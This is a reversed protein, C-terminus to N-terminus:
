SPVGEYEWGGVVRRRRARMGDRRNAACKVFFTLAALVFIIVVAVTPVIVVRARNTDNRPQYPCTGNIADVWCGPINLSNLNLFIAADVNDNNRDSSFSNQLVSLLHKNELSTHPVSFVYPEPCAAGADFYTVQNDSVTWNYPQDPDKCAVRRRANCNSTRWRGPHPPNLPMTACRTRYSFTDPNTANLPEGPAWSWLTSFTYAQYPLPNKDATTNALSTNLFPSIGCSTLNTIAPLPITTNPNQALNLAPSISIAWSSNTLPTITSDGRSFLCGFTVQGSSSITTNHYGIIENPPFITDFDASINYDAMQPDINGYGVVLRNFEQFESFAESPWGDRTAIRGQSDVHTEFYGSAPKNDWATDYWSSDLNSREDQLETPVFLVGDTLNGKMVDGISNDNGPLQDQSPQQAPADPTEYSAAVHVNVLMYAVSAETTTATVDLFSQFIESLFNLTVQRTCNYAGIQILPVDNDHSVATVAIEATSRATQSPEQKSPNPEQLPPIQVPCLSWVSLGPDWYVDVLFRRFGTALLNSLCKQFAIDEYQNHSFCAARLSVAPVTLFNIPVRLGVDRQA